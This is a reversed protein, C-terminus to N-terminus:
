RTLSVVGAGEANVGAQLVQRPGPRVELVWTPAGTGPDSSSYTRLAGGQARLAEVAQAGARYARRAQRVEHKAWVRAGFGALATL